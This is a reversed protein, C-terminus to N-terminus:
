RRPMILALVVYLVIGPLLGTLLTLIAYAVRIVTPDLEWYEAFGGCVGLLQRETSSRFLKRYPPAQPAGCFSCYASGEPIARQCVRCTLTM